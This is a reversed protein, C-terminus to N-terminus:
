PRAELATFTAAVVGHPPAYPVLRIDRATPIAAEQVVFFGRVRLVAQGPEASAYDCSIANFPASDAPGVEVTLVVHPQISGTGLSLQALGRDIMGFAGLSCPFAALAAGDKGYATSQFDAPPEAGDPGAQDASPVSPVITLDLYVVAPEAPFGDLLAVAAQRDPAADPLGLVLRGAVIPVASDPPAGSAAAASVACAAGALASIVGARMGTRIGTRILTM